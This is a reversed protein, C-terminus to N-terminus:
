KENLKNLATKAQEFNPNISLAKTCNARAQETEGTKM